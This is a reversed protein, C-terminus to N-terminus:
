LWLTPKLAQLRAVARTDQLCPGLLVLSSGEGEWVQAGGKGKPCVNKRKGARRELHSFGWCPEVRSM